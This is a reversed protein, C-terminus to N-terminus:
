QIPQLLALWVLFKMKDERSKFQLGWLGDPRLQIDQIVTAGPFLSVLWDFVDGEYDNGHSEYWKDYLPAWSLEEFGEGNYGNM